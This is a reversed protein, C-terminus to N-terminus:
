MRKQVARNIGFFFCCILVMCSLDLSFCIEGKPMWSCCEIRARSNGAKGTTGNIQGALFLNEVARTELHPFLQRPDVYDYAM